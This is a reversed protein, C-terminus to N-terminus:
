AEPMLQDFFDEMVSFDYIGTKEEGNVRIILVSALRDEDSLHHGDSYSIQGTIQKPYNPDTGLWQALVEPRIKGNLAYLENRDIIRATGALDRGLADLMAPDSGTGALAPGEVWLLLQAIFEKNATLSRVDLNLIILQIDKSAFYRALTLDEIHDAIIFKKGKSM